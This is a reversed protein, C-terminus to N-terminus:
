TTDNVRAQLCAYHSESNMLHDFTQKYQKYQKYQQYQKPNINQLVRLQTQCQTLRETERQKLPANGAGAQEAVAARSDPKSAKPPQCASTGLALLCLLATRLTRLLPTNV